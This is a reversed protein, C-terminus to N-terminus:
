IAIGKKTRQRKNNAQQKWTAWRCNGPEYNGENNTRDLTHGEPRVGMDQLFNEFRNLWRACVTIGRGGYHKFSKHNPDLCRQRMSRWTTWEASPGGITEGHTTNREAMRQSAICGCSRTYGRLISDWRIIKKTGCDCRCLCGARAGVRVMGLVVLRHFRQGTVDIRKM